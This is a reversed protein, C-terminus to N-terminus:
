WWSHFQTRTEWQIYNQRRWYIHFPIPVFIWPSNVTLDLCELSNINFSTRTIYTSHFNVMLRYKSLLEKMVGWCYKPGTVIHPCVRTPTNAPKFHCRKELGVLSSSALVYAFYNCTDDEQCLRQCEAITPVNDFWALNSIQYDLDYNYCATCFLLTQQPLTDLEVYVM